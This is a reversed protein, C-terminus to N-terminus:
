KSPGKVNEYTHMGGLGLLGVLIDTAMTGDLKPPPPIDSHFCAIVWAVFPVVAISWVLIGTMSYMVTPRADAAYANGSSAEAQDVAIQAKTLDAQALFEKLADQAQETALQAKIQANVTPDPWIRDVAKGLLAEGQAIADDILFAM